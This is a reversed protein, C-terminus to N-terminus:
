ARHSIRGGPANPQPTTEHACGGSRRVGRLAMWDNKTKKMM